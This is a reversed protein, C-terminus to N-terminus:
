EDGNTALKRNCFKCLTAGEHEVLQNFPHICEDVMISRLAAIDDLIPLKQAGLEVIQEELPRIRAILKVMNDMKRNWSTKESRNAVNSIAELVRRAKIQEPTENEPKKLRAM